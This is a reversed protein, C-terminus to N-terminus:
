STSSFLSLFKQYQWKKGAMTSQCLQLVPFSPQTSLTPKRVSSIEHKFVPERHTPIGQQEQQTEVEM